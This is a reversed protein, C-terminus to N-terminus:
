QYHTCWESPAVKVDSGDAVALKTKSRSNSDSIEGSLVDGIKGVM